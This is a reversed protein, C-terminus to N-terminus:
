SNAPAPRSPEATRGAVAGAMTPIAAVGLPCPYQSASVLPVTVAKPSAGERPDALPVWATTAM